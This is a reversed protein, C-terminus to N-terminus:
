LNDVFKGKYLVSFNSRLPFLSIYLFLGTTYILVDSRSRMLDLGTREKTRVM